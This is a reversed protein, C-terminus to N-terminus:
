HKRTTRQNSYLSSLTLTVGCPMLKYNADQQSLDFLIALLMIWHTIRQGNASINLRNTPWHLNTTIVDTSSSEESSPKVSPADQDISTSLRTDTTDAPIPTITGPTLLQPEPGSGFQESAMTTLEDFEVHNTEM